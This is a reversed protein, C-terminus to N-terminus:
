YRLAHATLAEAAELQARLEKRAAVPVDTRLVRALRKVGREWCAPTSCLYAGRGPLTTRLDVALEGSPKRVIRLLEPKPRKAGCGACTREPLM